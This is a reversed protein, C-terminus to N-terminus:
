EKPLKIDVPYGEKGIYANGIESFPQAGDMTKKVINLIKEPNSMKSYEEVSQDRMPNSFDYTDKVSTQGKPDTQYTFRGLSYGIPDIGFITTPGEGEIKYDEYKVSGSNTKLYNMQQLIENKKQEFGKATEAYGNAAKKNGSELALKVQNKYFQINSDVRDIKDKLQAERNKNATVIVERLKKLEDPTLDKETFVDKRGKLADVFMRMPLPIYNKVWDGIISSDKNQVPLASMNTNLAKTLSDNNDM